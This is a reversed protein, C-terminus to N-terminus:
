EPAIRRLARLVKVKEDRVSRDDFASPPEMAVLALLQLLHNQVIDRMAGASDYYGAREEIGISAAWSARFSTSDATTRRRSTTSPAHSRRGSRRTSRGPAASSRSRTTFSRASGM